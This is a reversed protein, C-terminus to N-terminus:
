YKGWFMVPTQGFDGRRDLHVFRRYVGVSWGARMAKEVLILRYSDDPVSVDIACTGDSANGVTLHYSASSGKARANHEPTRCCSTPSMGRGFTLRLDLLAPIFGEAFRMYGGDSALEDVTFLIKDTMPNIIPVGHM